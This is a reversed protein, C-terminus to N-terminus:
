HETKQWNKERERGDKQGVKLLFEIRKCKFTWMWTPNLVILIKWPAVQVSNWATIPRERVVTITAVMGSDCKKM